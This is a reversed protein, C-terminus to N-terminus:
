QMILKVRELQNGARIELLYMGPPIAGPQIERAFGTSTRDLLERHVEVGNVSLMRIEVREGLFRDVEVHFRHRFPNPQVKVDLGSSLLGKVSTCPSETVVLTDSYTCNGITTVTVYYTGATDIDYVTNTSGDQWVVFTFQNGLDITLTATDCITTDGDGIAFTDALRIVKVTDVADPCGPSSVVWSFTNEGIALGSVQSTAQAPTLLTAPSNVVNWQSAFGPTAVAQLTITDSCTTRDPGGNAVPPQAATVRVTDSSSACVGNSVTWVLLNSGFALNSVQTQPDNANAFTATGGPQTWTGSGANPAQASLQVQTGCIVQDGGANAQGPDAFRIVEVTDSLDPCVGNSVTWVFRNTGISLGSVDTSAQLSDAFTGEGLIQTWSGTGVQAAQAALTVTSGCVQQDSGALAPGPNGFIFLSLTDTKAPCIGNRVTWLLRTEGPQLGTISTSPNLSDTLTGSGSLLTWSGTGFAPSTADLNTQVGCLIQDPGALADGPAALRTVVVTDRSDPCVGNSVTWIFINQGIGLNEVLTGAAAANQITGTGSLLIWNGTGNLPVNGALTTLSDCTTQDVGASAADPTAQIFLSVTDRSPACVGNRVTWVLMVEGPQLSSISSHADLSDTLTGTGSILAWTGTGSAPNVANLLTETGCLIQDDGALAESPPAQRTIRVTDRNEPCIGNSVVWILQTEGIAISSLGSNPDAANEILASGSLLQWNGTGSTPALANLQVLSDCLVLDPGAQAPSLEPLVTLLLTDTQVPCIGNEISWVLRQSGTSLNRITTVAQSSDDLVGTGELILWTGTGNQPLNALLQAENSCFTQDPGAQAPDAPQQRTILVTDRSEPCIGSAVVWEFANEGISLQSVLANRDQNDSLVGTGSIRFWTGSGVQPAAASLRISDACILRDFGADSQSVQPQVVIDVTDSVAPCLGNRVTWIWLNSGASLNTLTAGSSLSDDVLGTGSLRTWSGTGILPSIASLLTESGCISQDAGADSASPPEQRTIQVEDSKQDCKGASIRWVFTNVGIGLNRVVTTSSFSNDFTGQGSTRVWRGSGHQPQNASLVVSDSCTEQDPGANPVSALRTVSLNVTDRFEPCSGNRVIFEFDNPGDNLNWVRTQADTSDQLFAGGNLVRWVSTAGTTLVVGELSLTDGCAQLDNGANGTPLELRHIRVTDAKSGCIPKSIVWAFLNDGASLGSVSTSASLSDAFQGTGAVLRWVGSGSSPPQAQLQIGDTCIEQDAGAQPDSVPTISTILVTDSNQPCTGGSVTWSFANEGESLGSVQTNSSNASQITGAGSIRTWFGSANSQLQAVGGCVTQDQGANALITQSVSATIPNSFVLAPNACSESSTLIFRVQDGNKLTDTAYQEGVAVLVNNLYWELSPQIGGGSYQVSYLVPTGTCIPGSPNASITATPVLSNLVSVVVANSVAPCGSDVAAVVSFTGSTDVTISPTNQGSSWLLTLNQSPSATLVVNGGACFTTPGNATVSPKGTKRYRGPNSDDCDSSDRVYGPPVICDVTDIAPNGRGDGDADLYSLIGPLASISASGSVELGNADTVLVNYQGAGAVLTNGIFGTSWQVIFPSQGGNASVTLSGNPKGACAPVSTFQLTFGGIPATAINDDYNFEMINSNVIKGILTTNNDAVIWSPWNAVVSDHAAVALAISGIQLTDGTNNIYFFQLVGEVDEDGNNGIRANISITQGLAPSSNSPGFVQFYMNAAAGVIVARTAENNVENSEPIVNKADIVTRIIHAGVITSSWQTPFSVTANDGTVLGNVTASDVPVEDVLVKLQMTKDINSLGINEYNIDITIPESVDPNLKSPNIGQSLVRMDALGSVQVKRVLVNNTEDCETYVNDPDTVFTFTYEGEQPFAFNVPNTATLPCTCLESVNTLTADGLNLTGNLGPGSVFFRVKLESADYLGSVNVPVRLFIAQNILYTSSWWSSGCFSEVPAFEHCLNKDQTRNNSENFEAISNDPDVEARLTQTAPAVSAVTKSVQVSQGANLNDPIDVDFISGDSRTFRVKIPAVATANGGNYVRAKYTVTGPFAPDIPDVDLEECYSGVTLDAMPQLIQINCTSANNTENTEDVVGNFLPVDCEFLFTYQGVAPYTYTLSFNTGSQRNLNSILQDITDVPNGDQFIRVRCTFPGTASGGSNYVGFSLNSPSGSLYAQGGAGCYVPYIDPKFPIVVIVACDRNNFEASETVLFTADADACISFTGPTNFQIDPVPISYSEGVALPPVKVSLLTPSGGSQTWSLITTDTVAQCGQNRVSLTASISQGEVINTSSVTFRTVLDPLCVPPVVTFTTSFNATLTFDTVTGTITYVGPTLSIPFSFNIQGASNTYTTFTQGGPQVTFTVQAGAVSPDQLPVATGTYVATGTLTGSAGSVAPITGPVVVPSVTIAGPVNFNGNTFPRIASNDLENTEQIVNTYDILVQMPCWAPDPPTTINWTVTTSSNPSLLPVVIDPYVINTDYQNILHVVFNQAPFDSVNHIVASIQLPSSVAPNPNDFTIDNAFIQIDSLIFVDPYNFPGITTACNGISTVVRTTYNLGSPLSNVTCFYVKGDVTNDDRNDAQQMLITRDNSGNLNGDGEYDLIVRPFTAPPLGNNLDTYVVEFRFNTYPTGQQPNVLANGFGSTSSFSFFQRGPNISADLDNCDGTTATLEAALFGNQPRTCSSLTAGTGYHDNDVDLFWTLNSVSRITLAVSTQTCNAANRVVVTYSGAQNVLLTDATAGNLSSGNRQWQYTLGAGKNARLITSGGTCFSDALTTVQALPLANVNVAISSSTDSCIGDVTAIVRYTGSQSASFVPNTAGNIDSGNRQWRISASGFNSATLNSSQGQCISVPGAPSIQVNLYNVTVGASSDSCGTASVRVVAYYFGDQNVTISNGNGSIPVGANKWTVTQGSVPNTFTIVQNLGSCLTVPGAPSVVPAPKPNVQVVVANSTDRCGALTAVARYTGALSSSLLNSSVGGVVAGNRLWQIGAGNSITATLNALDGSCLIIPGSPSVSVSPAPLVTIKVENSFAVLAGSSAKRRFWRTSSLLSPQFNLGTASTINQWSGGATSDQWQYAITVAGGGSAESQSQLQAPLISACITQDSGISGGLFTTTNLTVALQSSGGNEVLRIEIESTSNLNGLDIGTHTDCCGIHEFVQVGNVLVRIADDHAPIDLTYSGTPFGKRRVSLTFNDVPVPCGQYGSSSSPSASPNWQNATNFSLSSQEYFGLFNLGSGLAIDAGSYAYVNWTGSPFVLPNGFPQAITIQVQNSIAEQTGNIAVRRFWTTQSLVGPQFTSANAGSIDSWTGSVTSDQWQYTITTTLGGSASSSNTLGAPTGNQCIIQDGAITGPQLTGDVLSWSIGASGFGEALRVELTSNADLQGLTATSNTNCCGVSFVQTGNVFVLLNDDHLPFQIRYLGVPFGKRKFSVAFLDANVPCGSYGPASSPSASSSWDSSSAYDLGSFTYSGLFRNAPLSSIDSGNYAYAAWSGSPFVSPDGTGPVIFTRTIDSTDKCGTQNTVVVAYRASDSVTIQSNGSTYPSGNRLWLYSLNTGTNAQINLSQGPCLQQNGSPNLTAVTTVGTGIVLADSTDSCTGNSYGLAYSGPQTVVLSFGNAGTIAQGNRFWQYTGPINGATFSVTSVLGPCVQSQNATIETAGCAVTFDEVETISWKLDSGQSRVYLKHAGFSINTPLTVVRDVQVSDAQSFATLATGNGLGPDTDIFYEMRRIPGASVSSAPLIYFGRAETMGFNIANRARIYLTHIGATLGTVPIVASRDSSDSAPSISIKTGNGVGPDTDFFYELQNVASSTLSSSPVIYFTRSETLGYGSSNRARVYLTHFGSTLSSIPIVASRSSSDASPSIAIKTGSGVGPDTDFFYELGTIPGASFTNAPVIYFPRSETIGFGTNNKGRVYLTHFGSSLSAISIAAVRTVSDSPSPISLQTGLGVGPDTDFFYEIHTIPGASFSSLPVIYLPNSRPISWRGGMRTRIYLSHFGTSLSSVPISQNIAASDGAGITLSTALGIGPDTDFFYEARNQAQLASSLSFAMGLLAFAWSRNKQRAISPLHPSAGLGFWRWAKGSFARM